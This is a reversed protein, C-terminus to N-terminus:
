GAPTEEGSLLRERKEEDKSYVEVWRRQAWRQFVAKSLQGDDLTWLREIVSHFFTSAANKFFLKKRVKEGFLSLQAM